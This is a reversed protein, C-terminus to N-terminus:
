WANPLVALFSTKRLVDALSPELIKQAAPFVDNSFNLTAVLRKKILIQVIHIAAM